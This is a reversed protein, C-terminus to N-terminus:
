ALTGPAICAMVQNLTPDDRIRAANRRAAAVRRSQLRTEAVGGTVTQVETEEAVSPVSDAMASVDNASHASFAASDGHVKEDLTPSERVDDSCANDHCGRQVANVAPVLRKRILPNKRLPAAPVRVEPPPGLRQGYGDRNDDPHVRGDGGLGSGLGEDLKRGLRNTRATGEAMASTKEGGMGRLPPAVGTGDSTPQPNPLSCRLLRRAKAVRSRPSMQGYSVVTSLIHVCSQDAKALISCLSLASLM